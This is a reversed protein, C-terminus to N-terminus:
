LDITRCIPASVRNLFAGAPTDIIEVSVLEVDLMTTNTTPAVWQYIGDGDAMVHFPQTGLPLFVQAFAEGGIGFWPGNGNSCGVAIFNYVRADPLAGVTDLHLPGDNARDQFVNVQFAPNAFALVGEARFDLQQIREDDAVATDEVDYPTTGYTAFLYEAMADQETGADAFVFNGAPLGANVLDVRDALVPDAAVFAPFPYGDGGDALFNLTVLRVPEGGVITGDAVVVPSRADAATLAAYRVRDGVARTRDFSFSIGAFQGFQGPTAGLTSSAVAHELVEKLQPRTVTILTLANNFRLSDEIDLQSIEGAQKGSLPNALTPGLEGTIGDISGIPNRIGGGNKHSVLVAPDFGRAVALNAEATLVGLNTEETRVASRRGELFVSARGTIVGDKAIVVGRVADTLARVAGGKTGAAFPDTLNGWLDLVGQEDTAFAGSQAAVISGPVLVGSADFDVVLRGVYSYQGDTSVIAAPQGNANTTLFPYTGAATDGARLRDTGDALITDSGGAIVVDVDRLLGILTQELRFQQLHTVLIIKDVGLGTMADITPQLIAALAVMDNTGAGPNQVTVGGTSSISAVLPTTAGVIGYRM